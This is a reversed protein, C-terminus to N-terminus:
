TIYLKAFTHIYFTKMVSESPQRIQVLATYKVINRVRYKRGEVTIKVLNIKPQPQSLM